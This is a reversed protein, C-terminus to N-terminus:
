IMGLDGCMRLVRRVGEEVTDHGGAAGPRLPLILTRDFNVGALWDNEAAEPLDALAELRILYLTGRLATLEPLALLRDFVMDSVPRFGAILTDPGPRWGGVVYGLDSAMGAVAHLGCAQARSEKPPIARALM